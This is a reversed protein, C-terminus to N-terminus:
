PSPPASIWTAPKSPLPRASRRGPAMARFSRTRPLFTPTEATEAELVGIVHANLAKAIAEAAPPSQQRGRRSSSQPLRYRGQPQVLRRQHQQRRLRQRRRHSQWASVLENVIILVTNSAQYGTIKAARGTTYQYQPSISYGTTKLEGGEGLVKKISEIM